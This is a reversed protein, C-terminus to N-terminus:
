HLSKKTKILLLGIMEAKNEVFFDPASWFIKLNLRHSM